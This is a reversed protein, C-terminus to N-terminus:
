KGASSLLERIEASTREVESIFESASVRYAGNGLIILQEVYDSTVVRVTNNKALTYTAREIYADATQAEKTYVVTTNGFKEVSGEGGRRKYADFVIIVNCSRFGQYNCVISILADRAHSLEAEALERLKDWAYILNYGDILLYNERVSKAAWRKPEKIEASIEVRQAVARPKIKGYTAEFIRMLEKDEAATARYSQPKARPVPISQEDREEQEPNETHMMSDAEYWPVSYGAGGKCFVSGAISDTDLEPDYAFKGIVEDANHCPIYDGSLLSIRGESRTYARLEMAYGRFTAVPANGTIVAVDEEFKPSNYSGHRAEIDTMARGLQEKPLRIEFDFTPELLVSHSKMIGQRLARRAAERFDAGETHKPHAKGSVLTIKMDTIPSGTLKGKHIGAELAGLVLRQWNSKLRETPCETTFVLGSGAPLPELKLRVEAYHMLPEFHGAGYVAEAITENYLVDGESFSVDFGFREKILQTLVQAQMDGMLRLKIRRSRHEYRLALSPEEEGLVALKLYADYVDIGESFCVTYDLVPCLTTKESCEIGIGQGAFSNELGPIAVVMGPEASKLSKFREGSYLRISEVKEKVSEGMPLRLTLIDKPKLEGGTIKMYTLRAGVRDTAIKYVKAGFLGKGYAIPRTYRTLVSILTDVGNLKLASGFVAPFIRCAYIARTISDESLESTNFYENMLLEDQSACDELFTNRDALEASFDAVEPGLSRKLSLLLESRSMDCIDCKNVFILTPIRRARLLKWLSVTHPMVGDSASIVLIAYDQIALAREAESFFDVHGPTDLITLETGPLSITAQKSFVTIGRAREISETDFFSNKKDVRGMDSLVGSRYLLAESLTTKGADVHALIGVVLRKM